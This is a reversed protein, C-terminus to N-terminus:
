KKLKEKLLKTGNKEVVKRLKDKDIESWLLGCETCAIFDPLISVDTGGFAFHKIERPRFNQGLGGGIQDLYKGEVIAHSGCRPCKM